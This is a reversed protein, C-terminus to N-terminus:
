GGRTRPAEDVQMESEHGALPGPGVHEEGPNIEATEGAREGEEGDELEQVEVGPAESGDDLSADRILRRRHRVEDWYGPGESEYFISDETPNGDDDDDDDAARAAVALYGAEEGMMADEDRDRDDQRRAEARAEEIEEDSIGSVPLLEEFHELEERERRSLRDAFGARVRTVGTQLYSPRLLEPTEGGRLGLKPTSIASQDIHKHVPSLHPHDHLDGQNSSNTIYDRRNSSQRLSRALNRLVKPVLRRTM